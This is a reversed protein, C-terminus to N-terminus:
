SRTLRPVSPTTARSRRERICPRKSRRPSLVPRDAQGFRLRSNLRSQQVRAARHAPAASTCREKPSCAPAATRKIPRPSLRAPTPSVPPHPGGCRRSARFVRDASSRTPAPWVRLFDDDGCGHRADALRNGALVDRRTSRPAADVFDLHNFFPPSSSPDNRAPPKAAFDYIKRRRHQPSTPQGIALLHRNTRYHRCCRHRYCPM